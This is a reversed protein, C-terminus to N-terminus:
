LKELSNEIGRKIQEEVAQRITDMNSDVAPRLYPRPPIRVQHAFIRKGDDGIWSLMKAFVPKIIGGLEQIRGYIKTPGVDVEASKDSSKVLEVVMSGALGAGGKSKASFTSRINLKAHNRIVEGGAMAAKKLIGQRLAQKINSVNSKIVIKTSSM